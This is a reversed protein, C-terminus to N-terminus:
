FPLLWSSKTALIVVARITEMLGDGLLYGMVVRGRYRAWNKVGFSPAIWKVTVVSALLQAFAVPIAAPWLLTGTIFTVLFYPFNLFHTVATIVAGLGLGLGIWNLDFLYGFWVWVQMRAWNLADVPWNIVTAPYASSPMGAVFWFLSTFVFSSLLTLGLLVFFAKVYERHSVNLLDAQFLGQAFASGGLPVTMVTSAAGVYRISGSISLPMPTFWIDKKPYGSYFVTLERLYPVSVGTYTVGSSATAIYNAFFTGGLVFLLLLWIPFDFNTLSWVVLALAVSSGVYVLLLAKPSMLGKESGGVKSLARLGRTLPKPNLVIPVIMAALSLGIIFSVFFYLMSRYQLVWYGWGTAWLSEAPWLNLRTVLHSGVFYLGFAGIFMALTTRIPLILGPVYFLPDLPIMFGAGPLINDLYPTVDFYPMNYVYLVMGGTMFPGIMFPLFKGALHVIIGGLASLFLPRILGPDREVLTEVTAVEARRAPFELKEGVAFIQYSLYGIVLESMLGLLLVLIQLSMPVLWASHLFFFSSNRVETLASGTPVFWDPIYNVIGFFTSAESYAYYTNRVMTLFFFGYSLSISQFLLLLFLEQKFLRARLLNSLESWLIIPIWTALALEQNTILNYYIFAPQILFTAFLFALYVRWTLAKPPAKAAESSEELNEAM